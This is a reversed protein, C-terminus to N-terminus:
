CTDKLKKAKADPIVVDIAKDLLRQKKASSQLVKSNELSLSM